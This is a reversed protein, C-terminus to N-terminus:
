WWRRRRFWPSIIFIPFGWLGHMSRRQGWRWRNM